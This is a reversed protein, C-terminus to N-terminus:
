CIRPYVRFGYLSDGIGQWLTELNAWWNVGQPRARALGARQCRVGARGAGARPM